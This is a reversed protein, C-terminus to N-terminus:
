RSAAYLLLPWPPPSLSAEICIAVTVLYSTSYLYLSHVFLPPHAFSDLFWWVKYWEMLCVAGCNSLTRSNMRLGQSLPDVPAADMCGDNIRKLSVARHSHPQFLLHPRDITNTVENSLTAVLNHAM